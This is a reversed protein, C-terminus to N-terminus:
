QNPTETKPSQSTASYQDYLSLFQRGNCTIKCYDLVNRKDPGGPDFLDAGRSDKHFTIFDSNYLRAIENRFTSFFISRNTADDLDISFEAGSSIKKLHEVEPKTFLNVVLFKLTDIDKGHKEQEEKVQDFQFKWGGPLEASQLFASLWPLVAIFLLGLAITDFKIWQHLLFLVFTIATIAIKIKSNTM